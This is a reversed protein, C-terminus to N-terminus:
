IASIIGNENRRKLTNYCCPCLGSSHYSRVGLRYAMTFGCKVCFLVKIEGKGIKSAALAVLNEQSVNALTAKDIEFTRKENQLQIREERLKKREGELKGLHGLQLDSVLHNQKHTHEEFLDRTVLKKGLVTEVLLIMRERLVGYDVPLGQMKSRTKVILGITEVTQFLQQDKVKSADSFLALLTDAFDIRLNKDSIEKATKALLERYENKASQLKELDASAEILTRRATALENKSVGLENQVTALQGKVLKTERGLDGIQQLYLIIEAARYGYKAFEDIVSEIVGLREIEIGKSALRTQIALYRQINGDTTRNSSLQKERAQQLQKISSELNDIERRLRTKNETLSLEFDEGAKKKASELAAINADLEKRKKERTTIESTLEPVRAELEPFSLGTESELRAIRLVGKAFKRMPFDPPTVKRFAELQEELEVPDIDLESLAEIVILGTIAQQVTRKKSRLWRSVTRIDDLESLFSDYETYSGNRLEDVINRVSGTAISLSAAINEPSYGRIWLEIVKYRIQQSLRSPM